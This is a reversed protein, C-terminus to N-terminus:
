LTKLYELVAQKEDESLANPFDHGGANKGPIATDFYRRRHAPHRATDPVADLEEVELGVRRHDYGDETRKWVKPRDAPHLVHWLTPVSGNHLYPGSAWVGDLPPAVYGGPDLVVPDQGYHSMWGTQMWRRHEITLSELRLPDTQVENWAVTQQEYTGNPGYTGHCRSCNAEFTMRGREALPADVPGDYKPVPVAEIWSQIARFDDEWGYITERNNRPLLMFQMLPRHTKPAFGDAYLSTKKRVNWFPPPDLDHHTLAPLVRKLDVSMDPRRYTGLVVGFIVSNTTGNTQSLPLGVTALDLHGLPKKQKLKILRVDETLTQLALHSNPLGPIVRGAVKGAHCTLCSMVWQGDDRSVYGLAPKTGTQDDPDPMLGYYSFMLRRRESKSAAEAQSREPEPWVTWLDAFVADDFDPPLFCRNRLVHYGLEPTPSEAVAHSSAVLLMVLCLAAM